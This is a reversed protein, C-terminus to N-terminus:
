RADPATKWAPPGSASLSPELAARLRAPHRTAVLWYPVPDAPDQLELRVSEHVWPRALVFARADARPGRWARTLEADMATVASCWRLEIRARGARLVADEVSVEVSGGHWLLGGVGGLTALAAALSFWLPTALVFIWGVSVGLVVVLVWWLVGARLREHYTQM